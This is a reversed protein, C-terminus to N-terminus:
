GARWVENDSFVPVNASGGGLVVSNFAVNSTPSYSIQDDEGVGSFPNDADNWTWISLNNMADYSYSASARTFTHSGITISTWGSDPVNGELGLALGNLLMSDIWWLVAITDGTPFFETETISGFPTGGGYSSQYGYQSGTGHGVTLVADIVAVDTCFARAGLLGVPDPLSAFPVGPVKFWDRISLYQFVGTSLYQILQWIATKRPYQSNYAASADGILLQNGKQLDSTRTLQRILVM